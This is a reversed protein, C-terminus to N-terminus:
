PTAETCIPSVRGTKDGIEGGLKRKRYARQRCVDSCYRADSRTPVFETGCVVCARSTPIPLRGSAHEACLWGDSRPGTLPVWRECGAVECVPWLIVRRSYGGPNVWRTRQERAQRRETVDGDDGPSRRERAQRRDTVSM